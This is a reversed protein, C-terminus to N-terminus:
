KKVVKVKLASDDGYPVLFIECGPTESSLVFGDGSPAREITMEFGSDDSVIVAGGSEPVPRELLVIDPGLENEPNLQIIQIKM